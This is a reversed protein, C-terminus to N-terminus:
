LLTDHERNWTADVVDVAIATARLHRVVRGGDVPQQVVALAVHEDDDGGCQLEVGVLGGEVSREGFDVLYTNGSSLYRAIKVNVLRHWGKHRKLDFHYARRNIRFECPAAGAYQGHRASFVENPLAESKTRASLYRRRGGNIAGNDIKKKKLIKLM